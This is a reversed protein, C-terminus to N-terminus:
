QMPEEELIEAIENCFENEIEEILEKGYILKEYFARVKTLILVRKRTGQFTQNVKTPKM